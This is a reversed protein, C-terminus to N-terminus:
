SKEFLCRFLGRFDKSLVVREQASLLPTIKYPSSMSGSSSAPKLPGCRAEYDWSIASSRHSFQNDYAAADTALILGLQTPFDAYPSATTAWLPPYQKPFTPLHLIRYVFKTTLLYDGVLTDSLPKPLIPKLLASAEGTMTLRKSPVVSRILPLTLETARVQASVTTSVSLKSNLGAPM